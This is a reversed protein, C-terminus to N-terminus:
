PTGVSLSGSLVQHANGFIEVRCTSFMPSLLGESQLCGGKLETKSGLDPGRVRAAREELEQVIPLRPSRM